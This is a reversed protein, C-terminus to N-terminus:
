FRGHEEYHEYPCRDCHRLVPGTCTTAGWAAFSACRLLIRKLRWTAMDM